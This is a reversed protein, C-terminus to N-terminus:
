RAHYTTWKALPFGVQFLLAEIQEKLFMVEEPSDGGTLLDDVYFRSLVQRATEPYTDCQDKACQQLARVANFTASTFGWVVCTIM